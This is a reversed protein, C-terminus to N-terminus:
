HLCTPSWCLSVTSKFSEFPMIALTFSVTLYHVKFLHFGGTRFIEASFPALLYLSSPPCFFGWVCLCLHNWCSKARSSFWATSLYGQERNIQFCCLFPGLHTGGPANHANGVSASNSKREAKSNHKDTPEQCTCQRMFLQPRARLWPGALVAQEGESERPVGKEERGREWGERQRRKREVSSPLSDKVNELSNHCKLKAPTQVQSNVEIVREEQIKNSIWISLINTIWLALTPDDRFFFGVYQNVFM